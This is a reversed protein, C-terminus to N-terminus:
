WEEVFRFGEGDFLGRDSLKLKPIVLLALFSLSMFPAALGSGMAKARADLRTYAAAVAYGEADSMLGAIPLPLLDVAEGCVAVLGGRADMVANIARAMSVADAGVCIVNHSDHAVSSALAGSRLGVGRVFAVAPKSARDGPKASAYRSVVALKLVDRGPDAEAFGGVLRPALELRETVLEGDTVGIVPVTATSCPVRLEAASVERAVFNNVPACPRYPLLPEGDRAVCAGDIYTASVRFSALDDVVIFDAPDGVRLLGVDLGYHEVPNVCAAQLVDYLNCGAALARRVLVDIHGAALLDPHLDDTCLMVEAAHAPLLGILADFNKAASGERILVRMGLALKGAAEERTFCEHDTHIGAAAYAAAREGALGPAHGDVPKGRRRAHEIKALLEPDGNLVGLWNMVEALYPVDGRALLADVEAAAVRAGATEFDTAPVCSPAGFAIKVPTSRAEALMWEVGAVGLVNAIEHPDSVTAVTGHVCALRGFEAPPLMSSEVHVHADVFGPCLYREPVPQGASLPEIAAIRGDAIRVTAPYTRRAHVDILHGPHHM